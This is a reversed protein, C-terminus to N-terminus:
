HPAPRDDDNKGTAEKPRWRVEIEPAFEGRVRQFNEDFSGRLTRAPVSGDPEMETPSVTDDVMPRQRALPEPVTALLDTVDVMDLRTDSKGGNVALLEMLPDSASYRAMDPDDGDYQPRYEVADGDRNVGTESKLAHVQLFALLWSKQRLLQALAPFKLFIATIKALKELTLTTAPIGTDSFLGLRHAISVQLRFANIFQKIRRPNGQFLPAVLKAQEVIESSDFGTEIWVTDKPAEQAAPVDRPAGGVVMREGSFAAVYKGVDTVSARPVRFPIQIFKEMYHVAYDLGALSRATPTSAYPFLYPIQKEASAAISACVVERDLALIYIIPINEDTIMLNLAQVLASVQSVDCRDLDDIFVCIRESPRIFARVIRTFDVQFADVFTRKGHYDPKDFYQSLDHEFPNGIVRWGRELAGAALGSIAVASAIWGPTNAGGFAGKLAIISTVAVVIVAILMAVTKILRFLGQERDVRTTLLKLNAAMTRWSGVSRSLARLFTLAFAAWMAEDQNYRWANFDVVHVARGRSQVARRLQRTFSSKGSGWEGEISLTLPMQTEEATLFSAVAEVYPRFGLTDYTTAADSEAAQRVRAERVRVQRSATDQGM